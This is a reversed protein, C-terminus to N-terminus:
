RQSVRHRSTRGPRPTGEEFVLVNRSGPTQAQLFGPGRHVAVMGLVRRYFKFSREADRVALAVHILANTRM